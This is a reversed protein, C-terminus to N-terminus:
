GNAKGLGAEQRLTPNNMSRVKTAASELKSLNQQFLCVARAKVCGNKATKLIALAM